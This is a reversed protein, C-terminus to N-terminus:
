LQIHMEAKNIYQVIFLLLSEVSRQNDNGNETNRYIEVQWSVFSSRNEEKETRIKGWDYNAPQLSHIMNRKNM